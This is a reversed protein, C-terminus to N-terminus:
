MFMIIRNLYLLTELQKPIIYVVIVLYLCHKILGALSDIKWDSEGLQEPLIPQLACILSVSALVLVWVINM